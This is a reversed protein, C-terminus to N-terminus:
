LYEKKLRYPPLGYARNFQEYFQSISSFGAAFAINEVSLNSSFLLERARILRMRVVFRHISIHMVRKFLTQVYNPHLDVALGIEAIDFPESIHESIFRIMAVVHRLPTARHSNTDRAVIWPPLLTEWGVMSARRLMVGIEVKLLDARDTDGSRYDRYWRQLTNADVADPSLAVVGGGMVCETMQGLKPLYLFSDLPFYINCQRIGTSADSPIGVAQHSVGAWFLVLKNSPTHVQRGDFVYTMSGETLWNFEIHGHSHPATMLQPTFWRM